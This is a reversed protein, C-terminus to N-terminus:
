DVLSLCRDQATPCAGHNLLIKMCNVSCGWAAYALPTIGKKCKSELLEQLFFGIAM